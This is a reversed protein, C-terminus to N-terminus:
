RSNAEPINGCCGVAGGFGFPPCHARYKKRIARHFMDSVDPLGKVRGSSSWVIVGAPGRPKEGRMGSTIM